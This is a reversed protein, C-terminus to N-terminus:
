SNPKVTEDIVVVPLQDYVSRPMVRNGILVEDAPNDRLGLEYMLDSIQKTISVAHLM